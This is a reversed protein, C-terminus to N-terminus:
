GPKGFDAGVKAAKIQHAVRKVVHARGTTHRASVIETEVRGQQQVKAPAMLVPVILRASKRKCGLWSASGGGITL